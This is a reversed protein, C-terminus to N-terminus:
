REDASIEASARAIRSIKKVRMTTIKARRTVASRARALTTRLRAIEALSRESASGRHAIEVANQKARYKENNDPSSEEAGTHLANVGNANLRRGERTVFDEDRRDFFFFFLFLPLFRVISDHGHKVRTRTIRRIFHFM